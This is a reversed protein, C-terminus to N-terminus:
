DNGESVPAILVYFPLAQLANGVFALAAPNQRCAERVIERNNQASQHAYQLAIGNQSVAKKVLYANTRLSDSVFQLALGNQTVAALAINLTDRLQISAYQVALGNQHVATFVVHPDAQYKPSVLTLNLGNQRMHALVAILELAQAHIRAQRELSIELTKPRLNREEVGMPEARNHKRHGSLSLELDMPESSREISIFSPEIEIPTM